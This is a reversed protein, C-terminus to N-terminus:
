KTAEEGALEPFIELLRADYANCDEPMDDPSPVSRVYKAIGHPDTDGGVAIMEVDRVWNTPCTHEEFYYRRQEEEDEGRREMPFWPVVLYVDNEQPPIRLLVLDTKKEVM